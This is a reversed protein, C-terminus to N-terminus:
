SCSTKIKNDKIKFDTVESMNGDKDFKAMYHIDVNNIKQSMKNYGKGKYAPDGIESSKIIIDGNEPHKRVHDIAFM